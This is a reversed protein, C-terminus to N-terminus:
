IREKGVSGRRNVQMRGRNLIVAIMIHMRAVSHLEWVDPLGPLDDREDSESVCGHLVIYASSYITITLEIIHWTNAAPGYEEHAYGCRGMM